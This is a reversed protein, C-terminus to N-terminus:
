SIPSPSSSPPGVRNQLKAYLKRDVYEALLGMLSLFLFGPFVLIEFLPLLVADLM